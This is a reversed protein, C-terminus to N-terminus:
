PETKFQQEVFYKLGNSIDTLWNLLRSKFISLYVDCM